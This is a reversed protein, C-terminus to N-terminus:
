VEGAGVANRGVRPIEGAELGIDLVPDGGMGVQLPVIPRAALFGRDADEMQQDGVEHKGARPRERRAQRCQGRM